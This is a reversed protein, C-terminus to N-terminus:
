KFYAEQFYKVPVFLGVKGTTEDDITAFIIGIVEGNTDIVPSGSNGRYVPADLTIVPKDWDSLQIEKLLNGKNAIGNFRLPNGIFYIFEDVKYQPDNALTLAPLDKEANVKVVALDIEPYDEIVEGTFLGHDPIGVKVKKEGKVVHSNTIMLGEKSFIFGTGKSDETEIVTVSKKYEKIDDQKSLEASTVLFKIAPISLTQPLLAVLNFVLALSIMWFAWKPFPRKPKGHIKEYAERELAKARAEEVLELMEEDDIEEILDKDIIDHEKTEM